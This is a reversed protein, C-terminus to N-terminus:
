TPEQDPSLPPTPEWFLEITDVLNKLGLARGIRVLADLSPQQLGREIRSLNAPDINAVRATARLGKGQGERIARLRAGPPLNGTSM